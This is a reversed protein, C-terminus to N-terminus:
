ILLSCHIAWSSAFADGGTVWLNGDNYQATPTGPPEVAFDLYPTIRIKQSVNPYLHLPKAPSLCSKIGPAWMINKRYRIETGDRFSVSEPKKLLWPAPWSRQFLWSRCKRRCQYFSKGTANVPLYYLWMGAAPGRTSFQLFPIMWRLVM